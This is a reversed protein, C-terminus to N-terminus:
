GPPIYYESDPPFVHMDQERLADLDSLSRHPMLMELTACTPLPLLLKGEEKQQMAQRPSLWIHDLIESDDVVIPATSYLPCVFFWTSYRRSQGPPTTWHAIPILADVPIDIGAEERTERVVAHRSAVYLRITWRMLRAVLFSGTAAM